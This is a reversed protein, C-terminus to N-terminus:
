ISLLEWVAPLSICRKAFGDVLVYFRDLVMGSNLLDLAMRSNVM